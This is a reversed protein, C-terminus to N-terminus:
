RNMPMILYQFSKDGNGKVILPRNNGNFNLVISDEKISQFCDLFYKLNLKMDIDKGNLSGQLVTRNEGVDQNQANIEFIKDKPKVSLTIQNFKDSFINSLKLANQVDSKLVIVSTEVDKPIIQRYDPFVGDILRSTLYFGPFTFSIQNKNYYVKMEEDFSGIIKLIEIINKFPILLGEIEINKKNKISKESLRFSDTSVFFINDENTYIYVSSIEPKIDSVASSYYVEKIGEIFGKSSIEFSEGEVAPLTPFDDPSVTKLTVSNNKNSIVLTNDKKEFKIIKEGSINSITNNLVDGSIVVEGEVEINAPIEIELGLSLNTSRIKLSKGSAILLVCNLVELTSNKSTVKDAQSVSDKLKDTSCELRM